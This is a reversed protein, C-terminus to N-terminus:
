MRGHDAYDGIVQRLSLMPPRWTPKAVPRATSMGGGRARRAGHVMPETHFWDRRRGLARRRLRGEAQDLAATLVEAVPAGARLRRTIEQRDRSTTGAWVGDVSWLVASALCSRRVPCGVCIHVVGASVLTGQGEPFWQRGPRRGRLGRGAALTGDIRARLRAALEPALGLREPMGLRDLECTLREVQAATPAENHGNEHPTEATSM